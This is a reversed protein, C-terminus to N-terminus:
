KMWLYGYRGIHLDVLAIAIMSEIVVRARHIICPDHRGKINIKVNEQKELNVTDQEKSISPTPKICTSIILPMGNTIGGNLGGNNNTKTKVNGNEYYFPDNAESGKLSAFDFGKGFSVGKVAPVSFLLSSIISECSDFFPEGVGGNVGYVITELVGGVSDQNLRADEIAKLMEEKKTENLVPFYESNLALMEEIGGIPEDYVNYIQKIHSAIEIGKEKLVQKCIAGVIVLPATIRGSFHGSGNYDEYGFYKLSGSYDAHSPRPTLAFDSYKSSDKDMNEIIFTLPTGTTYGNYYGSVVKYEDKEHRQTSISGKSKRKDLEKNVFDWDIKIGPAIGDITIGIAEGHSEGFLSIKLNKCYFSAM